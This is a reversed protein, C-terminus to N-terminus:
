AAKPAALVFEQWRLTSWELAPLPPEPAIEPASDIPPASGFTPPLPPIEHLPTFLAGRCDDVFAVAKGSGELFFGSDFWGIHNGGHNYLALGWLFAVPDGELGYVEDSDLWAVTVGKSNFIPKM